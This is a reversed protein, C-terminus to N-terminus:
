FLISGHGLIEQWLLLAVDISGVTLSDFNEKSLQQKTSILTFEYKDVNLKLKDKLMWTRIDTLCRGVAVVADTENIASDPSFSLYLQTDDAYAHAEPLHYKIVEFLKSSYIAFM